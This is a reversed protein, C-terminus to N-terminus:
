EPHLVGLRVALVRPLVAAVGVITWLQQRPGFGAEQGQAVLGIDIRYIMALGIGNLAMVLPLLLPDAYRARWRVVLHLVLALGVLVGSLRLFDAPLAGGTNVGVLAYGGVGLLVSLLFLWIEAARGTRIRVPAVTAM